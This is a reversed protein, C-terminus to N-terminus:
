DASLFSGGHLLILESWSALLVNDDFNAVICHQDPIKSKRQNLKRTEM